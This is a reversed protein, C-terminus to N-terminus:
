KIRGLFIVAVDRKGQRSELIVCNNLILFVISNRYEQFEVLETLFGQYM